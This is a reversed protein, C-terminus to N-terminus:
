FLAENTDLAKKKDIDERELLYDRQTNLAPDTNSSISSDQQLIDSPEATQATSSTTTM